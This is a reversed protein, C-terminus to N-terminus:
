WERTSSTPPPRSPRQCDEGPNSAWRHRPDLRRRVRLRQAPPNRASLDEVHRDAPRETGTGRPGMAHDHASPRGPLDVDRRTPGARDGPPCVPRRPGWGDGSLRCGHQAVCEAPLDSWAAVGATGVAIGHPGAGPRGRRGSRCSAFRGPLGASLRLGSPSLPRRADPLRARPRGHREPRFAEVLM